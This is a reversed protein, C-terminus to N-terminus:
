ISSPLPPRKPAWRTGGRQGWVQREAVLTHREAVIWLPMTNLSVLLLGREPVLLLVQLLARVLVQALVQVHVELQVLEM